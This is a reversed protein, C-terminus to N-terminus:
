EVALNRTEQQVQILAGLLTEAVAVCRVNYNNYIEVGFWPNEHNTKMSWGKQFLDYIIAKEKMGDKEEM